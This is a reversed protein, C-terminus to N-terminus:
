IRIVYATEETLDVLFQDNKIGHYNLLFDILIVHHLSVILFKFTASM